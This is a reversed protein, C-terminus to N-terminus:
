SGPEPERGLAVAVVDVLHLDRARRAEVVELNGEPVFMRLGQPRISFRLPTPADLAEGDVGMFVTGSKSRVEFEEATFEYWHKSFKRLGLAALTMLQAAQSGTQTSIAFVGLNGGDIRRRQSVDVSTGLVYPNNSVMILFAGDIDTGDPTAYQLDFPESQRGLLEKLMSKSVDVKADRYDDSQVITAYVGLSVNNVFLRDNVTAFDIRREVADRYAYMASRPDTRDLGLDLAFHNRTGAPICVFPLDHEAAVSAVLAQSGDGGAMGLCDAGRAVADRTLEELDLGRDLMVVEVGLEHALDVLGFQEVKGGGSWPNCLLVPRSPRRAAADTPSKQVPRMLSYRGLGLTGGVLVLILLTRLVLHEPRTVVQALSAVVLGIGAVTGVVGVIWRVGTDTILWWVGGTAIALGVLGLVLSGANRGIAQVIVAVAVVLLPLAVLAAARRRSSVDSM